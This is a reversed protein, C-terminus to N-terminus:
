AQCRGEEKKRGAEDETQLWATCLPWHKRKCVLCQKKIKPERPDEEAARTRKRSLPSREDMSGSAETKTKKAGKDIGQDPLSRIVPDLLKWLGDKGMELYHSIAAELTGVDRAIWRLIEEHLTRDFRRVENITPPRMGEPVEGILIGFYRDHLARYTNYGCAELMEMSRARIDLRRRLMEMDSVIEGPAEDVKSNSVALKQDKGLVVEGKPKPLLGARDLRREEDLSIFAEWVIYEYSPTPGTMARAVKTLSYHSPRESDSTPKPMGRELAATEMAASAAAGVKAKSSEEGSALKTLEEKALERGLNWLKRLAGAEESRKYQQWDVRPTRAFVLIGQDGGENYAAQPVIVEKLFDELDEKSHVRLSFSEHTAIGMSNLILFDSESVGFKAATKAFASPLNAQTLHSM